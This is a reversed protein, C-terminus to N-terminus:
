EKIGPGHVILDQVVCTNFQSLIITTSAALSAPNQGDDTAKAVKVNTVTPEERLIFTNFYKIKLTLPM